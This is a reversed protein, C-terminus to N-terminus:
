SEKVFGMFITRRRQRSFSEKPATEFSKKDTSRGFQM